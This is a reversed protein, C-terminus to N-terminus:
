YVIELGRVKTGPMDETKDSFLPYNCVKKLDNICLLHSGVDSM